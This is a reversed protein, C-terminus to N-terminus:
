CDQLAFKEKERCWNDLRAHDTTELIFLQMGIAPSVSRRHVLEVVM